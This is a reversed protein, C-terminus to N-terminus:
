VGHQQRPRMGFLDLRDQATQLMFVETAPRSTPAAAAILITRLTMILPISASVKSHKTAAARAPTTSCTIADSAM